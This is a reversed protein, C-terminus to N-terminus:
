MQMVTQHGRPMKFDQLDTSIVGEVMQFKRQGINEQNTELQTLRQVHAYDTTIPTLTLPTLILTILKSPNLAKIIM